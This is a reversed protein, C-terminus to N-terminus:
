LEFWKAVANKSFLKETDSEDRNSPGQPPSAEYSSFDEESSSEGDDSTWDDDSAIMTEIGFYRLSQNLKREV